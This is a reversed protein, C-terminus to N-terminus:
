SDMKATDDAKRKLLIELNTKNLSVPDTRNNLLDYVYVSGNEAIYAGSPVTSTPAIKRMTKGLHSRSAVWYVNDEGLLEKELDKYVAHCDDCEYRYYIILAGKADNPIMFDATPTNNNYEIIQRMTTKWDLDQIRVGHGTAILGPLLFPIPCFILLPAIIRRRFSTREQANNEPKHVANYLLLWIGYLFLFATVIFISFYPIPLM